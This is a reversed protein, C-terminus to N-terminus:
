RSRKRSRMVKNRLAREKLENERKELDKTGDDPTDEEWKSKRREADAQGKIKLEGVASAGASGSEPDRDVEM